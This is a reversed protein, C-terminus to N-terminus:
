RSERSTQNTRKTWRAFVLRTASRCQCSRNWDPGSPRWARHREPSGTVLGLYAWVFPPGRTHGRVEFRVKEAYIRAQKQMNDAEPSSTKILATDWVTSSLDRMTQHTQFTAKLMIKNLIQQDVKGDKKPKPVVTTLGSVGGERQKTRSVTRRLQRRSEQVGRSGERKISGQSGSMDLDQTNGTADPNDFLSSMDVRSDDTIPFASPDLPCTRLVNAFRCIRARLSQLHNSTHDGGIGLDHSQPRNQLHRQDM